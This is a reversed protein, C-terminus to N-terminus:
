LPWLLVLYRPKSVTVHGCAHIYTYTKCSDLITIWDSYNLSFISLRCKHPTLVHWSLLQLSLIPISYRIRGGYFSMFLNFFDLPAHDRIKSCLHLLSVLCCDQKHVLEFMYIFVFFSGLMAVDEVGAVLLLHVYWVMHCFMFVGPSTASGGTMAPWTHIAQVQSHRLPDKPIHDMRCTAFLNRSPDNQWPINKHCRPQTQSKMKAFRKKGM